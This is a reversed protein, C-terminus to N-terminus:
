PRSKAEGVDSPHRIKSSRRQTEGEDVESGNTFSGSKFLLSVIRFAKNTRQIIGKRYERHQDLDRFRQKEEETYEPNADDTARGLHRSPPLRYYVWAPSRIFNMVETGDLKAMQPVIQIGSSGNGIVAIRKNSYDYDHDWSASHTTHGQFDKLGPISPWSPHVLVGQGSILVDCFEERVEGKHEVTM